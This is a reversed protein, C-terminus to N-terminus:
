QQRLQGYGSLDPPEADAFPEPDAGSQKLRGRQERHCQRRQKQRGRRRPPRDDDTQKEETRRPTHSRDGKLIDGAFGNGFAPPSANFVRKPPVTSVFGAM